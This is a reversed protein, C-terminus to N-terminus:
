NKKIMQYRKIEKCYRYIEPQIIKLRPKILFKFAKLSLRYFKINIDQSYKYLRRLISLLVESFSFLLLSNNSRDTAKDILFTVWFELADINETQFIKMNEVYQVHM